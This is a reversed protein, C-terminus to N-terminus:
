CHRQRLLTGGSISCLGSAHSAGVHLSELLNESSAPVTFACLPAQVANSDTLPCGSERDRAEALLFWTSDRQFQWLPQLKSMCKGWAARPDTQNALRHVSSAWSRKPLPGQTPDRNSIGPGLSSAETGIRSRQGRVGVGMGGLVLFRFRPSIVLSRARTYFCPTNCVLPACGKKVKAISGPFPESTVGTEPTM